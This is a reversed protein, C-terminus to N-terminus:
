PHPIFARETVTAGFGNKARYTIISGGSVKESDVKRFSSPDKMSNKLQIERYIRVDEAQRRQSAKEWDVLSFTAVMGGLIVVFALGLFGLAVAGIFPIGEQNQPPTLKIQSM